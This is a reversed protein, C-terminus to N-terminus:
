MPVKMRTERKRRDRDNERSGYNVDLDVVVPLGFWVEKSLWSSVKPGGIEGQNSQMVETM